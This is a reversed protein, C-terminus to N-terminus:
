NSLEMSLIFISVELSKKEVLTTGVVNLNRLGWGGESKHLVLKNWAVLHMSEKDKKGTWMFSFIRKRIKDLIARPIRTVSLWYVHLGELVDKVLILRGGLLIWIHCWLGIKKEVKQILWIWDYAVYFNPKLLFGLYKFGLELDIVHINFSKMNCRMMWQM